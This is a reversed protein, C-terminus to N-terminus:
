AAAQGPRESATLDAAASVLAAPVNRTRPVALRDLPPLRRRSLRQSSLGNPLACGVTKRM